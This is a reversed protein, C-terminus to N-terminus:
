KTAPSIGLFRLLHFNRIVFEPPKMEGSITKDEMRSVPCLVIFFVMFKWQSM